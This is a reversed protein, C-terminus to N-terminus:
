NLIIKNLVKAPKQNFVSAQTEGVFANKNRMRSLVKIKDYYRPLVCVALKYFYKKEFAIFCM